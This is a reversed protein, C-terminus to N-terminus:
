GESAPLGPGQPYGGALAQTRGPGAVGPYFVAGAQVASGDKGADVTEPDTPSGSKLCYCVQM